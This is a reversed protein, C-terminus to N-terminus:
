EHAILGIHLPAFLIFRNLGKQNGSTLAGFCLDYEPRFRKFREIRKNAEIQKFNAMPELVMLMGFEDEKKYWKDEFEDTTYSLLGKAPDSVYINDKKQKPVCCHLPKSGLSYYM